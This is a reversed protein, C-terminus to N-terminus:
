GYAVGRQVAVSRLPDFITQAIVRSDLTVQLIIPQSSGGVAASSLGSVIGNVVDAARTSEPVDLSTPISDQIQKKVSSMQKEFGVGMGEAMHGGIEAFVKSPSHIGLMSQVQRKMQNVYNSLLNKLWTSRNTIGQGIGDMIAQGIQVFSEKAQLFINRISEILKLLPDIVSQESSALGEALFNNLDMATSVFDPLGQALMEGMHSVLQAIPQDLMSLNDLLGKAVATIATKGTVDGATATAETMQDGVSGMEDGFGKGLGEAMNSGMDAFVTSPSHIGFFNKIKDVIGGFFGSIKEWLWAAADAIGNWLGTILNLGM